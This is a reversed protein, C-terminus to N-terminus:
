INPINRRKLYAWIYTCAHACVRPPCASGAACPSGAGPPTPDGLTLTATGPGPDKSRLDARPRSDASTWARGAAGSTVRPTWDWGRRKQAGGQGLLPAPVAAPCAQRDQGLPLAPLPSARPPPSQQSRGSPLLRRAFGPSRPPSPLAPCRGPSRVAPAGSAGGLGGGQPLWAGCVLVKQAGNRLVSNESQRGAQGADGTGQGAGRQHPHPDWPVGKAKAREPREGSIGSAAQRWPSAQAESTEGLEAPLVFWEKVGLAQTVTGMQGVPGPPAWGLAQCLSTSLFHKFFDLFGLLRSPVPWLPRHRAVVPPRCISLCPRPRM